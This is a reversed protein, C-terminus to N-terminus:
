PNKDNKNDKDKGDSNVENNDGIVGFADGGGKTNTDITTTTVVNEFQSEYYIWAGNSAILAVILIICLVWLRKITRELTATFVESTFNQNM